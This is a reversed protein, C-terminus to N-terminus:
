IDTPEWIGVHELIILMKEKDETKTEFNIFLTKLGTFKKDAVFDMIPNFNLYLAKVFNKIIDAINEDCNDILILNPELPM